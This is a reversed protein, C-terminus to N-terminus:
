DPVFPPFNGPPTNTKPPIVTRIQLRIYTSSQCFHNEFSLYDDSETITAKLDLNIRLEPDIEHLGEVAHKYEIEIQFAYKRTM